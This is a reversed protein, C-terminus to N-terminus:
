LKCSLILNKNVCSPVFYLIDNTGVFPVRQPSVRSGMTVSDCQFNLYQYRVRASQQGGHPPRQASKTQGSVCPVSLFSRASLVSHTTLPSVFISPQRGHKDLAVRGCPPIRMADLLM